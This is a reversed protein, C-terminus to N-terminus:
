AGSAVMGLFQQLEATQPQAFVREPPGSEHVKGQHMFIVRDCVERAFRMEHTVMML